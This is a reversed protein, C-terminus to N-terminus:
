YGLREEKRTPSQSYVQGSFVGPHTVSPSRCPRAPLPGRWGRRGEWRGPSTATDLRDVRHREAEELVAEQDSM